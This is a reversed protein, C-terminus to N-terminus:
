QPHTDAMFHSIGSANAKLQKKSRVEIIIDASYTEMWERLVVIIYINIVMRILIIKILFSFRAIGKKPDIKM